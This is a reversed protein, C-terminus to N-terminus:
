LQYLEATRLDGFVASTGPILQTKHKHQSRKASVCLTKFSMRLLFPIIITKIEKGHAM